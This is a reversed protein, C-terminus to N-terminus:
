ETSPRSSTYVQQEGQDLGRFQGKEVFFWPQETSTRLLVYLCARRTWIAKLKTSIIEQLKGQAGVGIFIWIVWIGGGLKLADAFCIINKQFM